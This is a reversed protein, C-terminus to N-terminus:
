YPTVGRWGNQPQEKGRTQKKWRRRPGAAGVRRLRPWSRRLGRIGTRRAIERAADCGMIAGMKTQLGIEAAYDNVGVIRRAEIVVHMQLRIRGCFVSLRQELAKRQMRTRKLVADRKEASRASVNGGSAQPDRNFQRNGLIIGKINRRANAVDAGVIEGAAFRKQRLASVNGGTIDVTASMQGGDGASVNTDLINGAFKHRLGAAAMDGCARNAAVREEVRM